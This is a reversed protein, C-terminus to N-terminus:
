VIELLVEVTGGCVMGEEEADTNLMDVQCLKQNEKGDERIMLLASRLIDAEVCGGGITGLTRGDPYVLMKAGVGRPASGKRSVITALVKLESFEREDQLAQLLEKPYGNIHANKHKKAIIEAIIAVGIEEPTEAGIDLGVPSAVEELVRKDYGRDVLDQKVIASRRRSGIMGIYAHRKEVIKELCTVDYRHGRTLVVFYTNESGAIKELSEEFPGCIVEQAGARRANDAYKPRDELVTVNWGMMVGIRIVPM